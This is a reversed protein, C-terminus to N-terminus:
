VCVVKHDEIQRDILSTKVGIPEQNRLVKNLGGIWDLVGGVISDLEAEQGAARLLKDKAEEVGSGLKAWREQLAALKKDMGEKQVPDECSSSLSGGCDCCSRFQPQHECIQSKLDQLLSLLLSSPLFVPSPSPACPTTHSTYLVTTSYDLM